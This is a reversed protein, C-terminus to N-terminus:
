CPGPKLQPHKALRAGHAVIRTAECARLELCYLAERGAHRLRLTRAGPAVDGRIAGDADVRLTMEDLDVTTPPVGPGPRLDPAVELQAPLPLDALARLEKASLPADQQPPATEYVSRLRPERDPPTGALLSRAAVRCSSEDPADDIRRALHGLAPDCAKAREAAELLAACAPGVETPPDVTGCAGLGAIAIVRWRM